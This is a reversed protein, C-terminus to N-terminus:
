VTVPWERGRYCLQCLAVSLEGSVKRRRESDKGSFNRGIMSADAPATTLITDDIFKSDERFLPLDESKHNGFEHVSGVVDGVIAGLM